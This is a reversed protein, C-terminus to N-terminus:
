LSNVRACSWSRVLDEDETHITAVMGAVAVAVVEMAAVEMAVEAAMLAAMDMAEAATDQPATCPGATGEATAWGLETGEATAAVTGEVMGELRLLCGGVMAAAAAAVLDIAEAMATAGVATGEEMHAGEVLVMAAGEM